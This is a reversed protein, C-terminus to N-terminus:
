PLYCDLLTANTCEISAPPLCAPLLLTDGRSLKWAAAADIGGGGATDSPSEILRLEAGGGILTVIHFRRDGGLRLSDSGNYRELVFYACEVLTERGRGPGARSDSRRPEVPGCTWDIVALSQAVHLPRPNGERDTRDWDDLRFTVDSTQQVEYLLLGAGLAHVTGAPIFVCDGPAADFSHLCDTVRNDGIAQQLAARTVGPKLGAYIRSGPEADLVLWAETKGSEGPALAAAQADNPHVQVSLRDHADIWKVLLPFRALGAHKGLLDANHSAMLEALTMGRRPGEAVISQDPGHDSIEWAEAYDDGPGLPKGLVTALRRGGWIARKLLSQFRLPGLPPGVQSSSSKSM